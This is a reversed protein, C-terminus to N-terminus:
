IILTRTSRRCQTPSPSKNGTYVGVFRVPSNGAHMMVCTNNGWMEGWLAQHDPRWDEDVFWWNCEHHCYPTISLGADPHVIVNGIFRKNDGLYNKTGAYVLFNFADEYFAATLMDSSSFAADAAAVDVPSPKTADTTPMDSACLAALLCKQHPSPPLLPSWSHTSPLLLWQHASPLLLWQHPGSGDDHDLNWMGGTTGLGASGYNIIFNRHIHNWAPMVKQPDEPNGM